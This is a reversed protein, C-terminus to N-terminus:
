IMLCENVIAQQEAVHVKHSGTAPTARETRGVYEVPMKNLGLDKLLDEIKPAIYTYAGMNKPEEQAWIVRKLGPYGGLFAALQIKPFPSLQEVRIIALKKDIPSKERESVLDYYLKGTCLIVNEVAATDPEKPDPIVEQFPGTALEELTSVVMPHRLLSKPSMIVLPKRFDRKMQRRLAHFLNAPTTLNCVQMSAGACLQLFRELRASSHEPGQGEYGHPLLLTLGVMRAWKDEGSSLFQDIIIQAGNAFDGFQAEWITMFSPDTIANGYEFGLVAMESLPSNYICFEKNPNIQAIPKYPEGTKTDFYVAHRHTFTGRMVDQGTIRVSINESVLSAYSLLEAMGWDINNDEMMKARQELLRKVKSHINFGDPTQTLFQSLEKLKEANVSTDWTKEFDELTGRRLKQWQGGFVQPKFEPPNQRVDELIAQLNDMKEQYLNDAWSQDIVGEKVLTETYIAKATPHKKIVDYMLPQTFAPEDSENHGFRRYCILDIVVDQGFEQRFRLAMNMARVCAEPDDGNVLMVPAKIAKAMDSSYRTSRDDVPNTTFGVQNNIIVHITGGVTYGKLQSLQLTESVIGQGSFAADGHILVNVVKKREGTDNHFRQKARTMGCAVPNVAELHSPNFALSVHCTGHPTEKDTSHGLHYKVDGEYGSLGIINGSFEGFITEIAKDMFNALVNIRGRHAMGIVIEKVGKKTGTSVLTELMPLLSDGGEVSFRKAGVFRSHLFKELSETRILSRLIQKKDEAELQFDPSKQEMERNFWERVNDECGSVQVALTGCYTSELFAIIDKLPANPLGVLGGSKFPKNLDTESLRFRELAFQSLDKQTLNLPDLHAAQHGYDRYEKILNYVGIEQDSLQGAGALNQAFEMGEFFLRWEPDISDPNKLFHSYQEEIYELNGRSLYSFKESSPQAM